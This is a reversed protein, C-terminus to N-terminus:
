VVTSGGDGDHAQEESKEVQGHAGRDVHRKLSYEKVFLACILGSFALPVSVIWIMSLSRTFAHLVQERLALPQIQSLIAYSSVSGTPSVGTSSLDPVQALRKSLETTYITDGISIGITAGLMRRFIKIDSIQLTKSIQDM